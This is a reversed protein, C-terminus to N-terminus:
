PLVESRYDLELMAQQREETLDRVMAIVILAALDRPSMLRPLHVYAAGERYMERAVDFHDATLIVRADPAHTRMHQLLQLNSTGKLMTDPVTSVLVKAHHVNAHHLTDAHSIDGYISRIGRRTLEDRVAPNFDIVAIRESLTPDLVLLDHLLSSANRSFGLFVIPKPLEHSGTLSQQPLERMGTKRLLPAIRDYIEYNYQIGYTSSVATLILMVVVISLVRQDIHGLAVGLTCIVLSFESIQSLNIATIISARSGARTMQLLPAISVFRTAIVFLSGVAGLLLIEWSPRELRAGLTVFFLTIFFDRLSVIKATVDLNYPFTSLAVGAVLAGMERSLDLASAIMVISFCWGLAGMVMLEPIKAISRFLPPLVFRSALFAFMLVGIGKALSYFLEGIAPNALDRQFALFLIAWLDQFVLIGLSLRGATTDLEFKDYLVKVVIMTSSLACAVALYLPAYDESRSFGLLPWFALGLLLCILFQGIGAALLMKGAQLLKKLDIELGIMFLLLILGLESIPEIAEMSIWHLGETPGILIGAAIYGLIIPQRLGRALFAAITAAVIAVAIQFLVDAHMRPLSHLGGGYRRWASGDIM